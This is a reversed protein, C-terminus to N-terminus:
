IHKFLIVNLISIVKALQEDVPIIDKREDIDFTISNLCIYYSKM